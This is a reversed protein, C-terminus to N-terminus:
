QRATSDFGASLSLNQWTKVWCPSVKQVAFIFEGPMGLLRSCGDTFLLPMPQRKLREKREGLIYKKGKVTVDTQPVTAM